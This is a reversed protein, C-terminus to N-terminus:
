FTVDWQFRFRMEDFSGLADHDIDFRTIDTTLKNNHGNFFWNLAVAHEYHKEDEQHDNESYTAYRVAIELPKPWWDILRNGLYGMQVYHGTFSTKLNNRSSDTVSKEHYEAQASIGKYMLAIDVNHQEIRYQNDIGSTFQTLQGGGSSSFRTFASENSSYSVAMSALPSERLSLDSAKFGHPTGFLNWQLRGYYLPAGGDNSNSGRGTGAAVGLWYSIYQAQKEGIDGYIAAGQQRDITFIRNVISRDLMQQGGSSISRERSYELKWQGTKFKLWDLKEVHMTYNLMVNNVLDYEIGFKLWPQYAYGKLKFRARNIGFENGTSHFAVYDEIKNPQSDTPTAFRSQIRTQFHLKFHDESTTFTLGKNTYSTELQTATAEFGILGTLLVVCNKVLHQARM